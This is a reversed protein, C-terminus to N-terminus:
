KGVCFRSFIQDIMQDTVTQGTVEGVAAAAETIDLSAMDPTFGQELGAIAQRIYRQSELLRQAQNV